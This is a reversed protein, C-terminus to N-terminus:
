DLIDSILIFALGSFAIGLLAATISLTTPFVATAYFGSILLLAGLIALVIGTTKLSRNSNM